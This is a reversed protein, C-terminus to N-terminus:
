APADALTAVGKDISTLIIRVAVVVGALVAALGSADLPTPLRGHFLLGLLTAFLSELAILQGSLVMPLRHTAANWAWAGVLSSMVAIGLAWAYLHGAM